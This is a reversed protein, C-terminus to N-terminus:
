LFVKITIWTKYQNQKQSKSCHSLSSHQQHKLPSYQRWSYPILCLPLTNLNWLPCNRPDMLLFFPWHATL